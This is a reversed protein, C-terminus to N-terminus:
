CVTAGVWGDLASLFRIMAVILAKSLWWKKPKEPAM